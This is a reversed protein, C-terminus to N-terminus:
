SNVTVVVIMGSEAHELIHCHMIWVGPNTVDVLIDSSSNTLPILYRIEFLIIM